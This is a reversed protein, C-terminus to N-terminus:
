SKIKTIKQLKIGSYIVCPFIYQMVSRNRWMAVVSQQVDIHLTMDRLGNSSIMYMVRLRLYEISFRLCSSVIASDHIGQSVPFLDDVVDDVLSSANFRLLIDKECNKLSISHTGSRSLLKDM